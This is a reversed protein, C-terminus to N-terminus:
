RLDNIKIALTDLLNLDEFHAKIVDIFSDATSFTPELEGSIYGQAWLKPTSGNKLWGYISKIKIDENHYTRPRISFEVQIDTVFPRLTAPDGDWPTIDLGKPEKVHRDVALADHNSADASARELALRIAGSIQNDAESQEEEQETLDPNSRDENQEVTPQLLYPPLDSRRITRSPRFANVGSGLDLDEAPTQNVM